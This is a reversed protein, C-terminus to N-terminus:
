ATAAIIIIGALILVLAAAIVLFARITRVWDLTKSADELATNLEM